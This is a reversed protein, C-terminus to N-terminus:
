VGRERNLKDRLVSTYDKMYQKKLVGQNTNHIRRKYVLKNTHLAKLGQHVVRAFWDVVEALQLTENFPGVSDFAERSILMCGPHHGPMEKLEERLHHEGSSLLEPSIFQELTGTVMDYDPNQELTDLLFDTHDPLWLDDADLFELYHGCSESIGTNRAAAAGKNAQRIIRVLPVFREAIKLTQDTSGDDVIIVEKHAVDQNLVSTIAGALYKEGNFVPIIVSVDVSHRKEGFPNRVRDLSRKFVKLTSLEVLTRGDTMNEGHRRVFLTVEELKRLKIDMESARKFWDADEGTYAFMPDFIGVVRFAERRYLGAGLFGPFSELPNGLYEYHGTATNKETHQAYGHVVLIDDESLLEDMLYHLNNEPWLDDVDLFAIFDATAEIIGRNRAEAPGQNHQFFYRHDVKLESIIRASDDSSGDDIFIIELAPYNQIKINDIADRIFKAGNYVPIIISILPRERSSEEALPITELTLKGDLYHQLLSAIEEPDPGLTLQYCPLDKILNTIVDQTYEGAYPLQSMTTFSLAGLIKKYPIASLSSIGSNGVEPKMIAKLPLSKVIQDKLAPYLFLLLKEFHDGTDAKVYPALEPFRNLDNPVLKATGYLSQVLPEPGPKVILYDDALYYMGKKLCSLATSSKGVGGKGTILVAGERTGVAAAHLLQGGNKEMWWHFVSRLPAAFVWLPLYQVTQVWFFATNTELDMMQLSFDSYHFAIRIRKSNFGWFDGRETFCSRDCPPPLMEVSTSRSDWVLVELEGPEGHELELHELAPTLFPILEEGAFVLCVCTGGISYYKRIEGSHATAARFREVGRSFFEVQEEESRRPADMRPKDIRSEEM